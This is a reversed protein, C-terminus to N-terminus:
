DNQIAEIFLDDIDTTAQRIKGYRSFRQFGGARIQYIVKGFWGEKSLARQMARKLENNMKKCEIEIKDLDAQCAKGISGKLASAATAVAASDVAATDADMRKAEQEREREAEKEKALLSRVMKSFEELEIEGSNDEDYEEFIKDLSERSQQLGLAQMANAFEDKDIAGSSDKDFENFTEQISTKSIAEQDKATEWAKEYEENDAKQAKQAKRKGLKHLVLFGTVLFITGVLPTVRHTHTHTHTQTHTYVCVCVCVCMQHGEELQEKKGRIYHITYLYIHMYM